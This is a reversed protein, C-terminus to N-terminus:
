DEMIVTRKTICGIPIAQRCNFDTLGATGKMGALVIRGKNESCLWGVSIISVTDLEPDAWDVSAYTDRWEVMEVIM